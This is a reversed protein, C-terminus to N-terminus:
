ATLKIQFGITRRILREIYETGGEARRWQMTLPVPVVLPLGEKEIRRCLREPINEWITESIVLLACTGSRLIEELMQVAEPDSGAAMVTAGALRFGAASEPDTLVLYRQRQRSRSLSQGEKARM